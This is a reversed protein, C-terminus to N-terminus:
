ETVNLQDQRASGDRHLQAIRNYSGRLPLRIAPQSGRREAPTHVSATGIGDTCHTNYLALCKTRDSLIVTLMGRVEDCVGSGVQSDEKKV